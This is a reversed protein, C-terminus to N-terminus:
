RWNQYIYAILNHQIWPAESYIAAAIKDAQAKTFWGTDMGEDTKVNRLLVANGVIPQGHECMGYFYSALVNLAPEAAFLGEDDVVMCFKKNLRGASVIDITGCGIARCCFHLVSENEERKVVEIQGRDSLRIGCDCKQEESWRANNKRNTEDMVKLKEEISM